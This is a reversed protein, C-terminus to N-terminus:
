KTAISSHHELSAKQQRKRAFESWSTTLQPVKKKKRVVMARDKKAVREQEMGEQASLFWGGKERKKNGGKRYGSANRKENHVKQRKGKTKTKWRRRGVRCISEEGVKGSPNRCAKEVENKKVSKIHNSSGDLDFTRICPSLSPYWMAVLIWDFINVKEATLGLTIPCQYTSFKWKKTHM